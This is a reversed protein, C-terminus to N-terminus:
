GHARVPARFQAVFDLTEAAVRHKESDVAIVHYSEDLAVARKDASGLHRMVFDVNRDFPCTHDRRSHILLTPQVVEALRPRMRDSLDLLDLAAGLPMLRTGPHISRAAHDHIDSAAGSSFYIRNGWPRAPRMLRLALRTRTPLFFAPALMVLGAVADRQDAALRAALLAGMSLGVVVNPDGFEHLRAFGEVVSEYWSFHNSAGLDEPTAAHGRLRVGLVRVGTAALQAGLYRMEYPTGSLGHILLVSLGSGPLFFEGTDPSSPLPDDDSKLM